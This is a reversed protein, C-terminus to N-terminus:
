KMVKLLGFIAVLLAFFSKSWDLQEVTFSKSLYLIVFLLAFALFNQKIFKLVDKAKIAIKKLPSQQRRNKSKTRTRPKKKKPNNNEILNIVGYNNLNEISNDM